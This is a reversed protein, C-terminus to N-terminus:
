WMMIYLLAFWTFKVGLTPDFLCLGVMPIYMLKYQTTEVWFASKTYSVTPDLIFILGVAPTTRKQGMAPNFIVWCTKSYM